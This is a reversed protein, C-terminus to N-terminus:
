NWKKAEADFLNIIISERNSGKEDLAVGAPSFTRKLTIFKRGSDNEFMGGVNEWRTKDNGNRDTYSGAPIALDAIKRTM